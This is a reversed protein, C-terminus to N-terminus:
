TWRRSSRRSAAWCSWRRWSATRACRQAAFPMLSGCPRRGRAGRTAGALQEDTISVNGDVGGSKGVAVIEQKV